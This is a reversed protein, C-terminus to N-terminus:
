KQSDALVCDTVEQNGYLHKDLFADPYKYSKTCDDFKITITQMSSDCGIYEGMGRTKSFVVCNKPLTCKWEPKAQAPKPADKERVRHRCFKADFCKEDHRECGRKRCIRDESLYICDAAKEKKRDITHFEEHWCIGTLRNRGPM